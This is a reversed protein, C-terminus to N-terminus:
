VRMALESLIRQGELQKLRGDGMFRLVLHKLEKILSPNDNGAIIEGRLLEFRELEAQGDHNELPHDIDAFDGIQALLNKESPSLGQVMPTTLRGAQLAMELAHAVKVPIMRDPMKPVKVRSPFRLRLEHNQLAPRHIMYKGFRVLTPGRQVAHIGFGMRPDGYDQDPEDRRGTKAVELGYPYFQALEDTLDVTDYRPKLLARRQQYPALIEDRDQIVQWSDKKFSGRRGKLDTIRRRMDNIEASVKNQREELERLRKRQESKALDKRSRVTAEEADLDLRQESLTDLHRKYIDIDKELETIDDDNRKVQNDYPFRIKSM